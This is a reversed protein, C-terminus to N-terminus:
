AMRYIKMVTYQGKIFKQKWHQALAKLKDLPGTALPYTTKDHHTLVHKLFEDANIGLGQLIPPTRSDIAGCKDDRISRGAWDVLELYDSLSYGIANPHIDSATKVLPMLKVISTPEAISPETKRPQETKAQLQQIRQQVSTHDSTEPTKAIGARIPNLDVYSMCTLVAADDLLAQSKYRGEWFRGTCQDEQNARHALHENLCRMFWSIDFLRQRWTEIIAQAEAREADGGEGRFYRHVLLPWSYIKNWHNAVTLDDWTKAKDRDVRLVIHYHNSMVAYSAVDIAFVEALLALREVVWEKRHEYNKGTLHDEGCLFARRVCRCICHYYPTQQLDILQSRAKTM